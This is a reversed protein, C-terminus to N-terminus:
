NLSIKFVEFYKDADSKVIEKDIRLLVNDIQYISELFFPLFKFLSEIYERRNTADEKNDFVEISCTGYDSYECRKDNWTIKKVYQNEKNMLNNPDSKETRFKIDYIEPINNCMEKTVVKYDIDKEVINNLFVGSICIVVFLLFMIVIKKM